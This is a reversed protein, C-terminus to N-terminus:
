AKRGDTDNPAESHDPSDLAANTGPLGELPWVVLTTGQVGTVLVTSRSPIPTGSGSIALWREGVLLVHGIRGVDGVEDMTVGELGVLGGHVGRAVHGEHRHAFARSIYPRVTLVGLGSLGIAVVAQAPIASPALGAVLAGGLCGVAGFLAYFALHRLEVLFLVVAVLLWVVVM